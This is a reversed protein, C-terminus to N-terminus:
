GSTIQELSHIAGRRLSQLFDKGCIYKAVVEKYTCSLPYTKFLPASQLHSHCHHLRVHHKRSCVKTYPALLHKNQLRSGGEREELNAVQSLKERGLPPRTM